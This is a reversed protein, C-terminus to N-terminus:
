NPIMTQLSFKGFPFSMSQQHLFLPLGHKGVISNQYIPAETPRTREDSLGFFTHHRYPKQFYAYRRIRQGVDRPVDISGNGM